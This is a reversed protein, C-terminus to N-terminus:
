HVNGRAYTDSSSRARFRLPGCLGVHKLALPVFEPYVTVSRELGATVLEVELTALHAEEVPTGVLSLIVGRVGYYDYPHGDRYDGVVEAGAGTISGISWSLM